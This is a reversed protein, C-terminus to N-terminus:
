CFSSADRADAASDTDPDDVISGLRGDLRADLEALSADADLPWDVDLTVGEAHYNAQVITGEHQALWARAPQEDAFTLGLSLRRRPIYERTALDALLQSVTQAYARALGGTGLKIGGFYRTVVCAIRGLGSGEMVQYMPRGATGGPEGDDSFGFARDDDPAGAIYASCHHSADPYCRRARAVLAEPDAVRDVAACWGIFRSKQVDHQTTHPAEVGASPMFYRM